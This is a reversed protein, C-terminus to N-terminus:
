IRSMMGKFIQTTKHTLFNVNQPAKDKYGQKAMLLGITKHQKRLYDMFFKNLIISYLNVSTLIAIGTVRVSFLM